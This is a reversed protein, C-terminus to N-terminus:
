RTTRSIRFLLFAMPSPMGSTNCDVVEDMDDEYMTCIPVSGSNKPLPSANSGIPKHKIHNFIVMELKPAM